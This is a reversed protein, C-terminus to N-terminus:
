SINVKTVHSKFVFFMSVDTIMTKYNMCRIVWIICDYNANSNINIAM